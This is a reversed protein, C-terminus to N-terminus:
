YPWRFSSYNIGLYGPKYEGKENCAWIKGTFFSYQDEDKKPIIQIRECFDYKETPHSWFFLGDKYKHHEKYVYVRDTTSRTISIVMNNSINLDWEEMNNVSPNTWDRVTLKIRAKGNEVRDELLLVLNYMISRDTLQHIEDRVIKRIYGEFDQISDKHM